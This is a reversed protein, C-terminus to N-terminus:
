MNEYRDEQDSNMLPNPTQSKTPSSQTTSADQEAISDMDPQQSSDPSTSRVPPHGPSGSEVVKNDPQHMPSDVDPHGRREPSDSQCPDSLGSKGNNQHVQFQGPAPERFSREAFNM